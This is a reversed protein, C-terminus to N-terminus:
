AHARGIKALENMTRAREIIGRNIYVYGGALSFANLVDSNVVFFTWPVDQRPGQRALQTGIVNIYRVVTPDTVLPLQQNVQASEQQGLAIEQQTSVACATALSAGGAVLVIALGRCLLRSSNM